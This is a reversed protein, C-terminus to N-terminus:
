MLSLVNKAQLLHREEHAVIIALANRLSYTVFPAVPSTIIHADLDIEVLMQIAAILECQQGCFTDVIDPPAPEPSPILVKTTRTKRTTEPRVKNLVFSGWFAPLLPLREWFTTQRTGNRISKFTEFFPSNSKMVHDLCQGISRRNGGPRWNLQDGDLAGFEGRATQEVRAINETLNNLLETIMSGLNGM